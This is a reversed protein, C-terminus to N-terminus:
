AKKEKESKEKEPKEKEPKSKMAVRTRCYRLTSMNVMRTPFAKHVSSQKGQLTLTYVQLADVAQEPAKLLIDKEQETPRRPAELSDGAQVPELLAEPVSLTLATVPRMLPWFWAAYAPDLKWCAKGAIVETIEGVAAKPGKTGALRFYTRAIM